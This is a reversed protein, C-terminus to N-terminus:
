DYAKYPLPEKLQEAVPIAKTKDIGSCYGCGPPANESSIYRKIDQATVKEDLLDVYNDASSPFIRLKDGRGLFACNYYKGGNVSGRKEDSRCCKAYIEKALEPGGNERLQSTEYWAVADVSFPIKYEKLATVLENLCISTDGYDSIHVVIGSKKLAKLVDTSPVITGNTNTKLIGYKSKYKSAHELIRPLNKYLFPEGGMIAFDGIFDVREMLADMYRIAEDIDTCERKKYYHMLQSCDKCRLNCKETIQFCAIKIILKNPYKKIMREIIKDMNARWYLMRFEGARLIAIGKSLKTKLGTKSM